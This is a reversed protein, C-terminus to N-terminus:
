PHNKGFLREFAGNATRLYNEAAEYADNEMAILGNLETSRAFQLSNKGWHRHIVELDNQLIREATEMNGAEYFLEAIRFLIDEYDAEKEKLIRKRIAFCAFYDKQANAFEGKLFHARGSRFLADASDKLPTSAQGFFSFSLFGFLFLIQRNDM